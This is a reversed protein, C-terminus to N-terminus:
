YSISSHKLSSWYSKKGSQDCWIKTQLKPPFKRIYNWHVDLYNSIVNEKKRVYSIMKWKSHLPFLSCGWPRQSHNSGTIHPCHLQSHKLSTWPRQTILVGGWVLLYSCSGPSYYRNHSWTYAKEKLFTRQITIAKQVRVPSSARQSWGLQDSLMSTEILRHVLKQGHDQGAGKVKVLSRLSCLSWVLLPWLLYLASIDVSWVRMVFCALWLMIWWHCDNLLKWLIRSIKCIKHHAEWGPTPSLGLYTIIFPQNKITASKIIIHVLDFYIRYSAKLVEASFNQWVVRVMEIVPYGGYWKFRFDNQLIGFSLM